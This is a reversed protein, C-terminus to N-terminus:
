CFTFVESDSEQSEYSPSGLHLDYGDCHLEIVGAELLAAKQETPFKLPFVTAAVFEPVLFTMQFCGNEVTRLYLTHKKVKLIKAVTNRIRTLQKVRAISWKKDVKLVLEKVDTERGPGYGNRHVCESIRQKSYDSFKQKFEILRDNIDPSKRCFTEIINEILLHNFWSYYDSLVDAFVAKLTAKKRVDEVRQNLLPTDAHAYVPELGHVNKLHLAIHEPSIEQSEMDMVVNTVLSAFDLDIEETENELDSESFDHDVEMPPEKKIREYVNEVDGELRDPGLPAEHGSQISLPMDKPSYAEEIADAIQSFNVREDRLARVLQEWSPQPDQSNMWMQLTERLCEAVNSTRILIDDLLTSQVGLVTGLEYWKSQAHLTLGFAKRVDLGADNGPCKDVRAHLFSNIFDLLCRLMKM